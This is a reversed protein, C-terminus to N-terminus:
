SPLFPKTSAFGTTIKRDGLAVEGLIKRARLTAEGDFQGVSFLKAAWETNYQSTIAGPNGHAATLREELQQTNLAVQINLGDWLQSFDVYKTSIVVRGALAAELLMTSNISIMVDSVAVTEAPNLIYLMAEDLAVHSSNSVLERVEQSLVQDKSPPERVIVQCKLSKAIKIVDIIASNQASRAAACDFQSDLPQAAFCWTTRDPDLGLMKVASRDIRGRLSGVYDFKPAGIKIIREIPYGRESFVREQLDGWALVLDCAPTNIGLRPHKYYLDENAFVSEHPLLITPIGLAAAAYVIHRTFPQWDFTVMLFAANKRYPALKHMVMRRYESSHDTAFRLASVRDSKASVDRMIGLDVMSFDGHGSVASVLAGTHEPIWAQYLGVRQDPRLAVHNANPSYWSPLGMPRRDNSLRALRNSILHKIEIIKERMVIVFRCNPFLRLASVKQRQM